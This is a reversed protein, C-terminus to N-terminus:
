GSGATEIVALTERAARPWSYKALAAPAAALIRRRAVEDFLMSELARTTAPLDRVTV